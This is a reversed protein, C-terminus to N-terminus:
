AFGLGPIAIKHAEIRAVLTIWYRLSFTCITYRCIELHEM